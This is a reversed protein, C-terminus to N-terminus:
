ARSPSAKTGVLVVWRKLFSPRPWRRYGIQSLASRPARALTDAVASRRAHDSGALSLWRSLTLRRTVVRVCHLRLGREELMVAWRRAPLARVHSPDRLVELTEMLDEGERDDPPCQDAIGLRGGPALVRVMEDLARALDTFHHPARRCAVVTFAGDAFPLAHADAAIWDVPRRVLRRAQALMAATLDVGVVRGARAGLALATFGTGTAVDLVWDAPGPRLHDVLLDLDVDARHSDSRAYAAAQRTFQDRVLQGRGTLLAVRRVIEDRRSVLLDKQEPWFMQPLADVPVWRVGSPAAGAEGARTPPAVYLVYYTRNWWTRSVDLRERVDLLGACVLGGIGTEETVERIAAQLVSEGPEVAGKPLSWLDQPGERIVAVEVTDGAPRAVVGGAQLRLAAGRPRRYWREDIVM